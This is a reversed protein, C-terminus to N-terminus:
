PLAAADCPTRPLWISGQLGSAMHRRVFMPLVHTDPPQQLVDLLEGVSLYFKTGWTFENSASERGFSAGPGSRSFCLLAAGNHGKACARETWMRASHESVDGRCVEVRFGAIGLMYMAESSGKKTAKLLYQLNTGPLVLTVFFVAQFFMFSECCPSAYCYDSERGAGAM